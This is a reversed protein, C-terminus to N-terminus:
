HNEQGVVKKLIDIYRRGIVEPAFENVKERNASSMRASLEPDALLRELASALAAPNKPPVFLANVGEHLHDAIGRTKTTVIPLGANMAEPIVTPFGEIWYTPLVFISSTRYIRALEAGTLYGTRTVQDEIGLTQAKQTVHIAEPGDGVIVTHCPAKEKLLAQAELLDYIGKEKILRGVFLLVPMEKPRVSPPGALNTKDENPRVFVNAVVYYRGSPSFQQWQHKEESSLVLIADSKKLLLGSAAKFLVHGRDSLLDSRGGHFQLVIRQCLRRTILLLPIDRIFSAWEQTTKVVVVDFAERKLTKWIRAMDKVRGAFKDKLTEQDSHRGWTKTTLECGLSRLAAVLHPTHKPLPGQINPHPVLM